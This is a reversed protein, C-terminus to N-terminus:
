PLFGGHKLIRSSIVRLTIPLLFACHLVLQVLRIKFLLLSLSTRYQQCIIRVSSINLGM